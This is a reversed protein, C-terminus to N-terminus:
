ANPEPQTQNCVNHEAYEELTNEKENFANIMVSEDLGWEEGLRWLMYQLQGMEVALSHANDYGRCQPGFRIVKTIAQIVEACEEITVEPILLNV